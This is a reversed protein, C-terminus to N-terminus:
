FWPFRYYETPVERQQSPLREAARYALAALSRVFRRLYRRVTPQRAPAAPLDITRTLIM